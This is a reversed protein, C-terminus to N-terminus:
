WLLHLAAILLSLLAGLLALSACGVKACGVLLLVLLVGGIGWGIAHDIAHCWGDRGPHERQRRLELM